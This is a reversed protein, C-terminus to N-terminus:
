FNYNFLLQFHLQFLPTKVLAHLYESGNIGERPHDGDINKPFNNVSVGHVVSGHEEM